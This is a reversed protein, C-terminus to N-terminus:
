LNKCQLTDPECVWLLHDDVVHTHAKRHSHQAWWWMRTWWGDGRFGGFCPLWCRQSHVQCANEDAWHRFSVFPARHALWKAILLSTTSFALENFPIGVLVAGVSPPHLLMLDRGGEILRLLFRHINMIIAIWTSIIWIFRDNSAYSLRSACDFHSSPHVDHLEM